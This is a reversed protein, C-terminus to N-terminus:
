PNLKAHSTEHSSWTIGVMEWMICSSVYLWDRHLKTEEDQPIQLGTGTGEYLHMIWGM